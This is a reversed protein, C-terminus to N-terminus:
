EAAELISLIQRSWGIIGNWELYVELREDKSADAIMMKAKERSVEHYGQYAEILYEIETAKTM